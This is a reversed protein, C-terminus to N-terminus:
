KKVSIDHCRGTKKQTEEKERRLSEEMSTVDQKERTKIKTSGREDSDILGGGERRFSSHPPSNIFVTRNTRFTVKEIEFSEGV